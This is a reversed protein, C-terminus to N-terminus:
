TFTSGHNTSKTFMIHNGQMYTAYVAGSSTTALTVDYECQQSPALQKATGWTAGGDASVRLWIQIKNGICQMWATYVYPASPDAAIAPEWGDGTAPSSIISEGQWGATAARVGAVGVALAILTVALAARVTMGVRFTSGSVPPEKDLSPRRM